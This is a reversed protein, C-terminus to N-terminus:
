HAGEKVPPPQARPIQRERQREVVAGHPDEDRAGQREHQRAPWRALEVRRALVRQREDLRHQAPVPEVGVGVVHGDSELEARARSATPPPSSATSIPAAIASSAGPPARGGSPPSTSPRPSSARTPAGWSPSRTGARTPSSRRATSSRGRSTASG